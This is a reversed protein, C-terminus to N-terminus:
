ARVARSRRARTVVVDAVVGALVILSALLLAVDRALRRAVADGRDISRQAISDAQELAAIRERRLDDFIADRGARVDDRIATRQATVSEFVLARQRDVDRFLERREADFTAPAAAALHGIQRMGTSVDGTLTDLRGIVPSTGATLQAQWTVRDLLGENMYALRQNADALSMEMRGIASGLGNAEVGLAKWDSALISVRYMSSGTIPHETAWLEVKAATSPAIANSTRIAAIMARVDSEITDAAAIALHQTMGFADHGDGTRFYNRHQVAFAWLDVAAVVPDNDLSAEEVTPIASLKWLLARERVVPAPNRARISDAAREITANVQSATAFVRLKLQVATVAADQVASLAASETSVHPCGLLATLLGVSM